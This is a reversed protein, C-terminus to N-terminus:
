NLRFPSGNNNAQGLPWAPNVAAYTTGPQVYAPIKGSVGLVDWGVPYSAVLPSVTRIVPADPQVYPLNPGPGNLGMPNSNFAM